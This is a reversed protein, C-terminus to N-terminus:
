DENEEKELQQIIDRKDIGIKTLGSEELWAMIFNQLKYAEKQTIEKENIIIDELKDKFEKENEIKDNLKDKIEIYLSVLALKWRDYKQPANRKKIIYTKYYDDFANTLIDRKDLIREKIRVYITLFSEDRNPAKPYNPYNKVM